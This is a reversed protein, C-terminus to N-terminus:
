SAITPKTKNLLEKTRILRKARIIDLDLNEDVKKDEILELLLNKAGKEGELINNDIANQLDDFFVKLQPTRDQSISESARNADAGYLNEDLEEIIGGGETNKLEYITMKDSPISTLLFPSHSTIIFQVNPFSEVLGNLISYQWDPHLYTDIEDIFCVAPLDKFNISEDLMPLTQGYEWLRKMFIGVWTLVNQYGQSLLQAPIGFNNNKTKFNTDLNEDTESLLTIDDGTIHKIVDFIINLLQKNSEIDEKTPAHTILGRLWSIFEHFRNESENLILQRVDGLYPMYEPHAEFKETKTQQAFGVVLAELLNDEKLIGDQGTVKFTSGSGIKTFNVENNKEKKEITYHVKINGKDEYITQNKAEKITLLRIEDSKFNSAGVLGLAIARLVSTKGSGNGGVFCTVQKKFSIEVSTFVNINRLQLKEIWLRNELFENFYTETKGKRLNQIKNFRELFEVEGISPYDDKVGKLEFYSNIFPMQKQIFNSLHRLYKDDYGKEWKKSSKKDLSLSRALDDWLAEKNPRTEDIYLGCKGTAEIVFRITPYQMKNDVGYVNWFSIYLKDSGLLWYGKELREARNIKRLTYRLNPNDKRQELLFKYIEEHLDKLEM